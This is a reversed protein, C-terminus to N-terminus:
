FAHFGLRRSSRNGRLAHRRLFGAPSRAKGYGPGARAAPRDMAPCDLAIGGPAVIVPPLMLATHKLLLVFALALGMAILLACTNAARFLALGSLM